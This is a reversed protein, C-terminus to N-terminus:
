DEIGILSDLLSVMEGLLGEIRELRADFGARNLIVGNETPYRKRIRKGTWLKKALAEPDEVGLRKMLAWREGMSMTAVRRRAGELTKLTAGKTLDIGM